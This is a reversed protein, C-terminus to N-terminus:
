HTRTPTLRDRLEAVDTEQTQDIKAESHAHSDTRPEAAATHVAPILSPFLQATEGLDTGALQAGGVM